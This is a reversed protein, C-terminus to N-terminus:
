YDLRDNIEKDHLEMESLCKKCCQIKLITDTTDGIVSEAFLSSFGCYAMSGDNAEPSIFHILTPKGTSNNRYYMERGIVNVKPNDSSEIENAYRM